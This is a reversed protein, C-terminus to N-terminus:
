SELWLGDSIMPSDLIFSFSHMGPLPPYIGLSLSFQSGRASMTNPSEVDKTTKERSKSKRVKNKKKYM